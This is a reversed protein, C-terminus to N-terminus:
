GEFEELMKRIEVSRLMQVREESIRKQVKDVQSADAEMNSMMFREGTPSVFGGVFGCGAKDAAEKMKAVFRMADLQAISLNDRNALDDSENNSEWTINNVINQIFSKQRNRYFFLSPSIM